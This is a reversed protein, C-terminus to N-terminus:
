SYENLVTGFDHGEKSPNTSLLYKSNFFYVLSKHTSIEHFLKAAIRAGPHTLIKNTGKFFFIQLLEERQGM